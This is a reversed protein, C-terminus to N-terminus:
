VYIARGPRGNVFSRADMAARNLPLLRNVGLVSGDACPVALFEEKTDPLKVLQVLWQKDAGVGATRNNGFPYQASALLEPTLVKTGSIKVRLEDLPQPKQKDKDTDKDKDWPNVRPESKITCVVGPWETFARVKNHIHTATMSKFDVAAEAVNIKPAPTAQTHDQETPKATGDFVSPMVKNILIETGVCVCTSVRSLLGM